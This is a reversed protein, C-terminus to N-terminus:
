RRRGIDGTTEDIGHGCGNRQRWGGIVDEIAPSVTGTAASFGGAYPVCADQLGHVHLM